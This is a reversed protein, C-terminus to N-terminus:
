KGILHKKSMTHRTGHASGHLPPRAQLTAGCSQDRIDLIAEIANAYKQMQNKKENGPSLAESILESNALRGERTLKM